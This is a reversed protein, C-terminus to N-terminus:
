AVESYSRYVYYSGPGTSGVRDILDNEVLKQLYFRITRESIQPFYVCLEKTSAKGIERLKKYILEQWSEQIDTDDASNNTRMASNTNKENTKNSDHKQKDKEITFQAIASNNPLKEARIEKQIKEQRIVEKTDIASNGFLITAPRPFMSEINITDEAEEQANKILEFIDNEIISKLNNLERNLVSSNIPKIDGIFEALKLLSTLKEILPMQGHIKHPTSEKLNLKDYSAVFEVAINEIETKLKENKFLAACRFVALSIEISRNKIFEHNPLSVIKHNPLM